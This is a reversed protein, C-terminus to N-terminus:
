VKLNHMNKLDVYEKHLLSILREIVQAVTYQPRKTAALKFSLKIEIRM